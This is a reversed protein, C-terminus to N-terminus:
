DNLTYYLCERRLKLLEKKKNQLDEVELLIDDLKRQICDVTDDQHIWLCDTCDWVPKGKIWKGGTSSDGCPYFPCYCFTCNQCHYHCPYDSCDFNPGEVGEGALYNEYFKRTLPHIVPYLVYGRPTVMKGNQIYTFKNGLVLLPSKDVDDWNINGMTSVVYESLRSEPVPSTNSTEKLQSVEKLESVPLIKFIGVPTSDNLLEKLIKHVDRHDTGPIKQLILILEAAVANKLRNKMECLPITADNLNIVAFDNLTGLTTSAYAVATVGPVVKAEVDPYKDLSQYFINLIGEAEPDSSILAVNKNDLSKLITLHVMEEKAINERITKKGKILDEIQKLHFSNGIILDAENLINLAQLTLHEKSYGIGVIYIM